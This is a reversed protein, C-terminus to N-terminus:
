GRGSIGEHARMGGLFQWTGGGVGLGVGDIAWSQLVRDGNADVFVCNGGGSLIERLIVFSGFCDGSLSLPAAM